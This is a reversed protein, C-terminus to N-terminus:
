RPRTAARRRQRRAKAAAAKQRKEELRYDLKAEPHGAVWQDPLMDDLRYEDGQLRLLIDQPLGM